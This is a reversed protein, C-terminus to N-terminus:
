DRAEKSFAWATSLFAFLDPLNEDARSRFDRYDIDEYDRWATYVGSPSRWGGCVTKHLRIAPSDDNSPSNV